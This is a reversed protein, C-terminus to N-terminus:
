LFIFGVIASREDLMHLYSIHIPLFAQGLYMVSIIDWSTHMAALLFWVSYGLALSMFFRFNQYFIILLVLEYTRGVYINFPQSWFICSPGGGKMAFPRNTQM